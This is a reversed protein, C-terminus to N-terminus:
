QPCNRALAAIVAEVANKSCMHRQAFARGRDAYQERVSSDSLERLGAAVQEPTKANLIPLKEGTYASFVDVDGGAIVPRGLAFADRAGIGVTGEGFHDAIVDSAAVEEIFETQPMEPLWTTIDELELRSLLGQTEAIHLGKRFLRLELNGGEDRYRRVGRLLIDTRKNDLVSFGQPLPEKWNLRSVNLVRLPSNCPSPRRKLEGLDTLMFCYRRDLSVGIEELLVDGHPLVGPFAYEVGVAARFGRRQLPILRSYLARKATSRLKGIIGKGEDPIEHLYARNALMDLDSGTSIVFCSKGALAALAIGWNNAVVGDCKRLLRLAKRRKRTPLIVDWTRMPALDSLAEAPLQKGVFRGEPRGLQDVSDILFQVEHGAEHMALALTYPYNNTNGIFGVKM